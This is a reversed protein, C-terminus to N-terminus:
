DALAERLKAALTETSFPKPLFHVDAELVGHHAIVNATYGSVYLCKLGPRLAALASWLERGNMGPMVVDTVLLHIPETSNKVLDLAQAPNEAALVTYGLSELLRRTLKLLAADDEVLLLTETGTQISKNLSVSERKDTGAPPERISRCTFASPPEKIRNATFM